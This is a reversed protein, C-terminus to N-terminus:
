LYTGYTEPKYRRWIQVIRNPKDTLNKITPTSSQQQFTDKDYADGDIECERQIYFYCDDPYDAEEKKELNFESNAAIDIQRYNFSIHDKLLLCSTNDEDAVTTHLPTNLLYGLINGEWWETIGSYKPYLRLIGEEMNYDSSGYQPTTKIYEIYEKVDDETISDVGVEWEQTMIHTGDLVVQGCVNHNSIINKNGNLYNVDFGGQGKELLKQMSIRTAAMTGCSSSFAGGKKTLTLKDLFCDKISFAKREHEIM